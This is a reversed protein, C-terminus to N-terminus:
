CYKKHGIAQDGSNRAGLLNFTVRLSSLPVSWYSSVVCLKLCRSLSTPLTVYSRLIMAPQTVCHLFVSGYPESIM